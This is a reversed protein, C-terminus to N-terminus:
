SPQAQRARADPEVAGAHPAPPAAHLRLGKALLKVAELHIAAVVGFTMLPHSVLLRALAGDSLEVRKAHFATHILPAGQADLGRVVTAVRAGPPRLDFQYSMDMGMFPSVHFAKGCSQRLRQGDFMDVPVVYSHRQGFTNRVEYLMAALRGTEDYCYFLTIPNFVFGLCRPMTQMVIRGAGTVVGARALNERVFVGIPRDGSGYDRDHLSFLNARNVSFLRLRADLEDLEDLDIVLQVVGHRLRHAKPAFRQHVVDGAYLASTTM